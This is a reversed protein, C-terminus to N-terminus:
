AAPETWQEADARRLYAAVDARAGATLTVALGHRGRPGIVVRATGFPSRCDLLAQAHTSTVVAGEDSGIALWRGYPLGYEDHGVIGPEAEGAFWAALPRLWEPRLIVSRHSDTRGETVSLILKGDDGTLHGLLLAKGTERDDLRIMEM